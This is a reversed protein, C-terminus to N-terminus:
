KPEGPIPLARIAAAITMPWEHPFTQWGAMPGSTVERSPLRTTEAALAAAERMAEAGERRCLARVEAFLVRFEHLVKVEAPSITRPFYMVDSVSGPARRNWAAIADPKDGGDCWPGETSCYRCAVYEPQVWLDTGACFPCPLLQTM